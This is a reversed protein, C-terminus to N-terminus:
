DLSYFSDLVYNLEDETMASMQVVAFTTGRKIVFMMGNMKEDNLTVDYRYVPREKGGLDATTKVLNEKREVNEPTYYFQELYELLEGESDFTEGPSSHDRVFVMLYGKYDPSYSIFDFLTIQQKLQMILAKRITEPDTLLSDIDNLENIYEHDRIEYGVPVHFGFRFFDSHYGHEDNTGVIFDQVNPEPTPSPTPEPTPTPTATPTPTPTPTPTATPMPSATPTPSPVILQVLNACGTLALLLALIVPIILKILRSPKQM